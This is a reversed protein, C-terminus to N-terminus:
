ESTKNSSEDYIKVLMGAYAGPISKSLIKTGDPVGKIVVEKPSFYVPDVKIVDLISDKIIFIESEDILLKRSIKIANPEEKAELQAELYMGEKLSTGRVEVFVKITQTTQDIKGNIRTVKGEYTKDDDPTKLKVSEGIKLLDSFTKGIALELEYVSTDIFEGLKQSPRILTGKTVLAETLVGNFPASIRYKSLRQELNKVNYYATIIGRGTVFYNAKEDNTEPLPAVSKSIDFNTLYTNWAPFVSPYDLRLDPMIATIANYLDSKASQVSAYYESSNISILTQGKKYAQGAKFDKSSGQFVGQVESYLELRNKAVLTGNAPIVIPVTTNKVTESFVTKIVKEVKPKPKISNEVIYYSAVLALIIIAVGIASLLIKRM